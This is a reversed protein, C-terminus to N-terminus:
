DYGERRSITVELEGGEIELIAARTFSIGAVIM